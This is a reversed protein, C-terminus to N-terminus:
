VGHMKIYINTKIENFVHEANVSPESLMCYYWLPLFINYECQTERWFWPTHVHFPNLGQIHLQINKLGELIVYSYVTETNIFYCPWSWSKVGDYLLPAIVRWLLWCSNIKSLVSFLLDNCYVFFFFLSQVVLLCCYFEMFETCLNADLIFLKMKYLSCYNYLWDASGVSSTKSQLDFNLKLEFTLSFSVTTVVGALSVRVLFAKFFMWTWRVFTWEKLCPVSHLLFRSSDSRSKVSYIM